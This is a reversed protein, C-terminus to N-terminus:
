VDCISMIGAELSKIILKDGQIGEFPPADPDYDKAFVNRIETECVLELYENVPPNPGVKACQTQGNAGGVYIEANELLSTKDGNKFNFIKVKQVSQEGAAFSYTIEPKKDAAGQIFQCDLSPAQQGDEQTQEIKAQLNSGFNQIAFVQFAPDSNDLTYIVADAEEPKM